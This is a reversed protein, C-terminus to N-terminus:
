FPFYCHVPQASSSGVSDDSMALAQRLGESTVAHVSGDMLGINGQGVGHVDNTWTVNNGFTSNANKQFVTVNNLNASCGSRGDNGINRCMTLMHNQCQDIPLLTGGSKVGADVGLGYSIANNKYSNHQIGGAPSRDWSSAPRLQPRKDGPDALVAPNAIFNSFQFWLFWANQFEPHNKITQPSTNPIRWPLYPLETDQIWTVMALTLQKQNSLCKTKAAKAKAKSLAPLILSALIGIIAIVVLLEILTFAARWKLNLQKM